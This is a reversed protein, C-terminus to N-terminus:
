VVPSPSTPALLWSALYGPHNRSRPTTAVSIGEPLTGSVLNDASPLRCLIGALSESWAAGPGALAAAIDHDGAVARMRHTLSTRSARGDHAGEYRIRLNLERGCARSIEFDSDTTLGAVCGGHRALHRRLPGYWLRASDGDIPFAVAGRAVLADAFIKCDAYRDDYVVATIPLLPPSAAADDSRSRSRWIAGPIAAPVIAAGAGKLFDRRNM